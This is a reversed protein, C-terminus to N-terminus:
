FEIRAGLSYNRFMPEAGVVVNRKDKDKMFEAIQEGRLYFTLGKTYLKSAISNPVYYSLQIRDLTFFNNDYLWFTSTQYNNSSSKTTLRPYDATSATAPTWRNLVAESYKKTGDVWFYNGSYISNSGNRGTGIAFLNFNKYNLNLTLGYSFRALSNGIEIQDRADIINDGNQDKYKIDGPRVEGYQQVPSADIDAQSAFFGASELGFIVDASRGQRYLYEEEWIEDRKTIESNAFLFNTGATLTFEGFAKTWRIGMEGGRYATENYNEFPRNYWGLLNPYSTRQIVQGSYRTTFLNADIYLAHDFFYGEVGINITKMKEFTLDPNASRTSYVSSTSRNGDNWGFSSTTLYTKEYNRYNSGGFETNIIGASARLRLYNISSSGSLFDEESILWALGVTPSFGGRNGPALKFGNVYASSFDVFYRKNYDYTFRLGLHSNAIDIMVNNQRYSDYYGLFTGTITHLDSFTSTYDLMAYTGIRRIYAMQASPLNQVGTKQDLGIMTLGSISDTGGPNTEWTPQYVAYLDTVNQNYKNYIDFTLYTKFKLGETIGDLDFQLGTNFTANRDLDQTYGSRFMNGYVNSKYQSTGGLIYNGNVLKATELSAGGELTPIAKILDVPLLPSFYYPHLTAADGWFNGNPSKNITFIGVADVFASIYDNVKVDVNARVNFRNFSADQGEGLAYLSGNRIWGVNAYYRTTANGGSFETLVKSYSRSNKLFEDSYYDVSPYRYPNNGSTYGAILENSFPPELIGDNAAAENYLKMYDLSNLYTPLVVPKSIGQEASINIVRKNSQGRKTTILIVGNRAQTGYLVASNADKLVTIQDVEELNIRSPDRPIGDVVILANGIGRINMNGLLGPIRGNIADFVYQSNDYKVIKEPDIVSLAGVVEKKRIKGFPINVMNAEDMLFPVKNLIVGQSAVSIPLSVPDFGEAEILIETNEPVDITFRGQADTKVETAGEKATIIANPVPNGSDDKLTSEVTVLKQQQRRQGTINGSLNVLFLITILLPIYKKNM